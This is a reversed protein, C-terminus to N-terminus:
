YKESIAYVAFSALWHTGEYHESAIYPLTAKLHASASNRLKERDSSKKLSSAIRYMCWARSLNLGDLHVIKPDSRDSVDAPTLIAELKKRPIFKKWWKNFRRRSLVRQMLDAESLCASLFDEGSPEWDAPCDEDSKYYQIASREILHKFDKDNHHRAYDLAFSLGFATNPHVGTRVPYHQIPLFQEYRQKVVKVLPKLNKSWKKADQDDWSDIEVALKMLWSWGYMREFSKSFTKFHEAEQKLNEASMNEDLAKRIKRAEPIHPFDKLIRVLMWHGHVSSHWDFCGYFAPHREHPEKLSASSQLVQSMKNPYERQMCDLALSAFHSAGADSLLVQGKPNFKIFPNEQAYTDQFFFLLFGFLVVACNIQRNSIM